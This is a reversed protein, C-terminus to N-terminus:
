RPNKFALRWKVRIDFTAKYDTVAKGQMVYKIGWHRVGSSNCDIWGARKVQYGSTIGNNYIEQAVCPYKVTLYAVKNLRVARVKPHEMLQSMSLVTNDDQDYVYYITPLYEGSAAFDGSDFRPRLEITYSLIKYQDYLSTFESTNPMSVTAFDTYISTLGNAFMVGAIQGNADTTMSTLPAQYFAYRTFYHVNRARVSRYVRNARRTNRRRRGSRKKGYKRFGTGAM